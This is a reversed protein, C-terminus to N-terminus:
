GSQVHSLTVPVSRETGLKNWSLDLHTLTRNGRLARAISAGGTNTNGGGAGKLKENLGGVANRSIDLFTIAHNREIADMLNIVEGDDIDANSLVVTTQRLCPRFPSPCREDILTSLM